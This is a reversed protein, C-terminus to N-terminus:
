GLNDGPRDYYWNEDDPARVVTVGFTAELGERLLVVRQHHRRFYRVTTNHANARGHFLLRFHDYATQAAENRETSAPVANRATELAGWIPNFKNSRIRVGSPNFRLDIIAMAVKGDFHELTPHAEYIPDSLSRVKEKKGNIAADRSIRLHAVGAYSSGRHNRYHPHFSLARNKVRRWDEFVAAASSSPTFLYRHSAQQAFAIGYELSMGPHVGPRDFLHGIGLTVLGVSDAYFHLKCGEWRALSGAFDPYYPHDALRAM